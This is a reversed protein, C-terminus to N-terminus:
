LVKDRGNSSDVVKSLVNLREMTGLRAWVGKEDRGDEADDSLAREKGKRTSQRRPSPPIDEPEPISPPHVDARWPDHTISLDAM